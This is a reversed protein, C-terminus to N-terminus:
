SLNTTLEAITEGAVTGSLKNTYKVSVSLVILAHIGNYNEGSLIGLIM